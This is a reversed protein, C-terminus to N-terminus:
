TWSGNVEAAVQVAVVFSYPASKFFRALYTLRRYSLVRRFQGKGTISYVKANPIAFDTIENREKTGITRYSLIASRDLYDLDCASRPLWVNM